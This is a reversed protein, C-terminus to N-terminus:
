PQCPCPRRWFSVGWPSIIGCRTGMVGGAIELKLCVSIRDIAVGFVGPIGVNLCLAENFFAHLLPKGSIYGSIGEQRTVRSFHPIIELLPAVAGDKKGQRM